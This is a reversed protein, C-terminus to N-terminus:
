CILTARSGGIIGAREAMDFLREVARVGEEGMDVSYDNVYLEIHKGIVSDELEQSHAKVYPGTEQRHAMAYLVSERILRQIKGLVDEGLSRKAVILGLPLPLGTEREWRRGMDMLSVLGFLPYTFRGEHIILGAEARGERVSGMIENFPMEVVNEALEPEFLRMLLFATTLKGPIAIRKGKLEDAARMKRSVLLPGCGRGMAAGSRLLCYNGRLDGFARCSVKTVDLERGLARRNLSEVDLLTERFKLGGANIKGHALAYFIFTDNPCPSYGLSLTTM